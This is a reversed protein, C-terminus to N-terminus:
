REVLSRAHEALLGRASPEIARARVGDERALAEARLLPRAEDGSDGLALELHESEDRAAEDVLLDGGLEPDRMARHMVVVLADELLDAHRRAPGGGEKRGFVPQESPCLCDQRHGSTGSKTSVELRPSM